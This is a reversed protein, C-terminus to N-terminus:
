GRKSTANRSHTQFLHLYVVSVYASKANLVTVDIGMQRASAAVELGIWGGGIIAMKKASLLAERLRQGDDWTRLAFVRPHSQWASSLFRPRGGTAILLKDFALHRGDSLQM